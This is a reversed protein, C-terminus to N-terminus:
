RVPRLQRPLDRSMADVDALRLKADVVFCGGPGVMVPNLDLEAVEPVDVALHGLQAVLRAVDETAGPASGRFGDLLPWIRLSRLARLAEGHDFPPLLFAHDAWVDTAIGGAAVMVLPGMARDRIVGLALEAGDVMPQVLVACGAGYTTEFGAVVARVEEATVLGTRVLGHETKHVVDAEALKVAVPLGLEVALAAARDAGNVVQGVLDIGYTGLLERAQEPAVWGDHQNSDLLSDALDRAGRVTGADTPEAAVVPTRRWGAYRAARGLAGMAAAASRFTTTSPDGAVTGGLAVTLLAREPHRNRVQSLVELCAALDNTGTAVLVAVVADVEESGLVM